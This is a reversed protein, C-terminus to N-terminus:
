SYYNFGGLNISSIQYNSFNNIKNDSSSILNNITYPNGNPYPPNGLNIGTPITLDSNDFPNQEVTLNTGKPTIYSLGDFAITTLLYPKNNIIAFIPCGANTTDGNENSLPIYFLNRLRSNINQPQQINTSYNSIRSGDQVSANQNYDIALFPINEIDTSIIHRTFESPIFTCPTISNPLNSDLVGVTFDILDIQQVLNDACASLTRSYVTNNNDVFRFETGNQYYISNPLLLHRPTILIGFSAQISNYVSVCTLNISSAWCSNSRIYISNDNDITSYVSLSDTATSQAAGLLLDISSTMNASLDVVNNTFFIPYIPLGDDPNNVLSSSTYSTITIYNNYPIPFKAAFPEVYKYPLNYGNFPEIYPRNSWNVNVMFVDNESNNQAEFAYVMDNNPGYMKTKVLHFEQYVSNPNTENLIPPNLLASNITFTQPTATGFSYINVITNYQSFNYSTSYFTNTQPFNRPDGDEVLGLPSYFNKSTLCPYYTVTNINGDGWIYQIELVKKDPLFTSPDITLSFPAYSTLYYNLNSNTLNVTKGYSTSM